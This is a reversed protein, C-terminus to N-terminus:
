GLNTKTKGIVATRDKNRCGPFLLILACNGNTMESVDSFVM